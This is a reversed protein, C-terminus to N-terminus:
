RIGIKPITKPTRIKSSCIVQFTKAESIIIIDPIYITFFYLLYICSSNLEICKIIKEKILKMIVKKIALYELNKKEPERNSSSKKFGWAKWSFGVALIPPNAIIRKNM